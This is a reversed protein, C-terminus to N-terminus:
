WKLRVAITGLLVILGLTRRFYNVGNSLEMWAWTFLFGFAILDAGTALNGSTPVLFKLGTAALGVVLPLNPKQAVVINGDGDRFTRDFLTNGAQSSPLSEPQNSM